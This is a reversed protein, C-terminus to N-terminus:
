FFIPWTFCLKQTTSSGVAGTFTMTPTAGVCILNPNIATISSALQDLVTIQPSQQIACWV